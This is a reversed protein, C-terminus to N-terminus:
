IMTRLNNNVTLKTPKLITEPSRIEGLESDVDIDSQLEEPWTAKVLRYKDETTLPWREPPVQKDTLINNLVNELTRGDVLTVQYMYNQGNWKATEDSDFAFVLKCSYDHKAVQIYTDDDQVSVFYFYYYPKHNLVPDKQDTSKTYQYLYRRIPKGTETDWAEAADGTLGYAENAQEVTTPVQETTFEPTQKTSQNIMPRTQSFCPLGDDTDFIKNDVMNWWSKIYRANKEYVTSGVTCVFSVKRNGNAFRAVDIIFPIGEIDNAFVEVNLTFAEGQQIVITDDFREM